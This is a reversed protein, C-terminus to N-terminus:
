SPAAHEQTQYNILSAPRSCYIATYLINHIGKYNVHIHPLFIASIVALFKKSCFSREM